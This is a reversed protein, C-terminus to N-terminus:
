NRNLAVQRTNVCGSRKQGVFPPHQVAVLVPKTKLYYL